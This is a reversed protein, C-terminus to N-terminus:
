LPALDMVSVHLFGQHSGALCASVRDGLDSNSQRRRSCVARERDDEFYLLFNQQPGDRWRARSLVQDVDRRLEAGGMGAEFRGLTYSGSLGSGSWNLCVIGNERSGELIGAPEGAQGAVYLRMRVHQLPVSEALLCGAFSAASSFKHGLEGPGSIVVELESDQATTSVTEVRVISDSWHEQLQRRLPGELASHPLLSQLWILLALLAACCALDLARTPRM